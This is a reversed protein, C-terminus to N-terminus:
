LIQIFYHPILLFNKNKLYKRIEEFIEEKEKTNINWMKNKFDNNENVDNNTMENIDKNIEMNKKKENEEKEIKVKFDITNEGKIRDM